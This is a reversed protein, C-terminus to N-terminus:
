KKSVVPCGVTQNAKDRTAENWNGSIFSFKLISFVEKRYAQQFRKTAARTLPGYVGSVPLKEGQVINLFTQVKKVAEGRDGYSVYGKFYPCVNVVVAQGCTATTQKEIQRQSLAYVTGTPQKLRMPDLVFTRYKNQWRKVAAVDRLEYIGNVPLKEKEYTNLFLELKRVDEKKNTSLGFDIPGSFTVRSSCTSGNPPVLM